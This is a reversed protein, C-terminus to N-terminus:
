SVIEFDENEARAHSLMDDEARAHSLMDNVAIRKIRVGLSALVAKDLHFFSPKYSENCIVDSLNIKHVVTQLKSLTDIGTLSTSRELTLYLVNPFMSWLHPTMCNVGVVLDTVQPMTFGSPCRKLLPANAYAIKFRTVGQMAVIASLLDPYDVSFIDLTERVYEKTSSEIDIADALIM